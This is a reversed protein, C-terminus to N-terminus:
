NLESEITLLLLGSSLRTTDKNNRQASTKERLFGGVWFTTGMASLAVHTRGVFVERFVERGNQGLGFSEM